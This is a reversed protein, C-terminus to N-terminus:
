SSHAKIKDRDKRKEGTAQPNKAILQSSYAKRKKHIDEVGGSDGVPVLNKQIGGAIGKEM